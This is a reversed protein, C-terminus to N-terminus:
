IKVFKQYGVIKGKEMLKIIYVGCRLNTIDLTKDSSIIFANTGSISNFIVEDFKVDGIINIETEGPNPIIKFGVVSLDTTSTTWCENSMPNIYVLTDNLYFCQLTSNLDLFCSRYVSLFGNSSGIGEIWNSFSNEFENCKIELSKRKDGNLLFFTDTVESIHITTSTGFDPNEINFTDQKNLDFDYMLVENTNKYEYIKNNEERFYRSLGEFDNGSEVNGSLLERYYHTDLFTSDESFKFKRSIISDDFDNFYKETWMVKPTVLKNPSQNYLRVIEDCPYGELCGDSDTSILWLHSLENENPNIQTRQRLNYYVDGAAVLNGNEMEKISKLVSVRYKGYENKDLLNQPNKYIKLWLVNSDPTLRMIFGNYVSHINGGPVENDWVRGCIIIDGNRAEIIDEVNYIRGNTLQNNPLVFSWIISDMMPNLKNLRGKILNNYKLPDRESNFYYHGDNSVLLVNPETVDDEHFYSKLTDGEQNIKVIRFGLPYPPVGASHEVKLRFALNDDHTGQIDNCEIISSGTTYNRKWIINYHEDLKFVEAEASYPSNFTRIFFVISDLGYISVNGDVKNEYGSISFQEINVLDQNYIYFESKRGYWNGPTSKVGTLIVKDNIIDFSHNLGPSLTDNVDQKIVDGSLNFKTLSSCEYLFNLERRCASKSNIIITNELVKMGHFRNDMAKDDFDYIRSFTQSSLTSHM